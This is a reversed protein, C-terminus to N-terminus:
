GSACRPSAASRRRTPSISSTRRRTPRSRRTTRASRPACRASSTRSRTSSAASASAARASSCRPSRSPRPGSSAARHVRRRAAAGRGRERRRAEYRPECAHVASSTSASCRTASSASSSSSSARAPAAGAHQEAGSRPLARGQGLGADDIAIARLAALTPLHSPDLDLAMEFREQASVRDGLKEDLAKGIRYYMEVRQKRDPTLDAVRTMYDISQAADGQKEYLKALAELAPINTDDLDVINRYADIARDIDEVEDAYVQAIAGYLEVKTKRDLTAAIHRDYTNILDLWQRLKRYCRELAFYRAGRPESRDRAVQELRQAALDAKLFHEEQISALKMLVDIRERETTVVDLQRELM